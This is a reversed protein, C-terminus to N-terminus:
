KKSKQTCILDEKKFDEPSYRIILLCVFRPCVGKECAKQYYDYLKNFHIRALRESRYKLRHSAREGDGYKIEFFM